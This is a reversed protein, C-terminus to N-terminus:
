RQQDIFQLPTHKSQRLINRDKFTAKHSDLLYTRNSLNSKFYEAEVNNIRNKLQTPHVALRRTTGDLGNMFSHENPNVSTSWKHVPGKYIPLYDTSHVMNDYIIPDLSENLRVGRMDPAPNIIVIPPLESVSEYIDPPTDNDMLIMSGNKGRDYTITGTYTLM